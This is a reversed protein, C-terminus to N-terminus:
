NRRAINRQAGTLGQGLENLCRGFIAQAVNCQGSFIECLYRRAM